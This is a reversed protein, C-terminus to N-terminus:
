ASPPDFGRETIILPEPADALHRNMEAAAEDMIQKPDGRQLVAQDFMNRWIREAELPREGYAVRYPLTEAQSRIVHNDVIDAHDLLDVHDPPGDMLLAWEVRREDSELAHGIFDFAAAQEEESFRNFVVFGEEPVQM